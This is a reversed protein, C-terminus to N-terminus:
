IASENGHKMMFEFDKFSVRSDGNSDLERFVKEIQQVPFNPAVQAFVKKLDEVKLFGNCQSDFAMFTQRIEEDEDKVLMKPKMVELFQELNLGPNIEDGHCYKKMMQDTEYKSPKYGFVLVLSVKLDERTLYGKGGEDCDQFVKHLLKTEKKSLEIIWKSNNIVFRPFKWDPVLFSISPVRALLRLSKFIALQFPPIVPSYGGAGRFSGCLHMM